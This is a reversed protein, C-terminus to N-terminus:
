LATLVAAGADSVTLSWRSGNPSAFSIYTNPDLVIHQRKVYRADLAANLENLLQQMFAQDYKAPAIRTSM